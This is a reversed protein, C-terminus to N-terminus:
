GQAEEGLFAKRAAVLLNDWDQLVEDIKSTDVGRLACLGKVQEGTRKAVAHGIEVAPIMRRVLDRLRANEAEAAQAQEFYQNAWREESEADAKVAKLQRKHWALQANVSDLEERLRDCESRKLTRM